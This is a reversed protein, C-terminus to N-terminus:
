THQTDEVLKEQTAQAAKEWEDADAIAPVMMVGGKHTVEQQTKTPADWGRMAAMRKVAAVRSAYPGHQIAQRLASLALQYDKEAQDEEDEPSIRKLRTIERVVYPKNMFESAYQAAVSHVYGVRKAAEFADFDVLFEEVFRDCLFKEAPSLEEAMLSDDWPSTPM